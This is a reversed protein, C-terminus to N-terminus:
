LLHLGHGRAPRPGRGSIREVAFALHFENEGLDYPKPATRAAMDAGAQHPTAGDAWTFRLTFDRCHSHRRVERLGLAKKM